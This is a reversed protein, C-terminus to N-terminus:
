NCLFTKLEKILDSNKNKTKCEWVIFYSWGIKKLNHYALKDREINKLFKNQWFSINTKPTTCYKCNKHRHWFCGHVFIVKKKSKFVIDPKGPLKKDNLRYRYGNKFLLKRIFIEPKTNESLIRSMNWSRKKQSLRDM